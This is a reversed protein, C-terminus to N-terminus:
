EAASSSDSSPETSSGGNAATDSLGLIGKVQPLLIPPVQEITRRGDLIFSAYIAALSSFEM